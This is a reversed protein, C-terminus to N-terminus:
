AGAQLLLRRRLVGDEQRLVDTHRTAEVAYTLVRGCEGAYAIRWLRRQRGHSCLAVM